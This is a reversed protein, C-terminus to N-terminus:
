WNSGKRKSFAHSWPSIPYWVLPEFQPRHCCFPSHNNKRHCPFRSSHGIIPRRTVDVGAKCILCPGPALPVTRFKGADSRGVRWIPCWFKWERRWTQSGPTACFWIWPSRMAIRFRELVMGDGVQLSGILIKGSHSNVTSASTFWLLYRSHPSWSLICGPRRSTCRCWLCFLTLWLPHNRPSNILLIPFFYPLFRVKLNLNSNRWSKHALCSSQMSM